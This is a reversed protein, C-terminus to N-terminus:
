GGVVEMFSKSLDPELWFMFVEAEARVHIRTRVGAMIPTLSSGLGPALPEPYVRILVHGDRHILSEPIELTEVASRALRGLKHRSGDEEYAYATVAYVHNNVLMVPTTASGVDREGISAAQAAMLGHPNSFAVSAAAAIVLAVVSKKVNRAHM